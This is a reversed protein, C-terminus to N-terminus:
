VLSVLLLRYKGIQLSSLGNENVGDKMEYFMFVLLFFGKTCGDKNLRRERIETGYLVRIQTKEYVVM